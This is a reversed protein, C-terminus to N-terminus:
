PKVTVKKARISKLFQEVIVPSGAIHLAHRCGDYRRLLLSLGDEAAHDSIVEATFRPAPRTGRRNTQERSM